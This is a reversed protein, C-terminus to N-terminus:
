GAQALALFRGFLGRGLATWGAIERGTQERVADPDLAVERADDGDAGDALWKHIAAADVEAHFQIGWANEAVRYAQACAPNHALVAAGAPPEAAYSHWQMTPFREPVVSLLPDAGGAVTREVEHWGIEPRPLRTVDWGAASAVLEAGLCVGLTPMGSDLLDQLWEREAALWPHKDEQDVHMSGGLVLVAGPDVDPAPGDAPRFEVLEHGLERAVEGFVCPGGSDSHVAALV